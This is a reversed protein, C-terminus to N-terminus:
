FGLVTAERSDEVLSMVQNDGLRLYQKFTGTVKVKDGKEPLSEQAKIYMEGSGDDIKYYKVILLNATETVTGKVTLTQGDLSNADELIQQISTAQQCSYLTIMGIIAFLYIVKNKM